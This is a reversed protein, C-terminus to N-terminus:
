AAVFSIPDGGLALSIGPDLHGVEAMNRTLGFIRNIACVVAHDRVFTGKGQVRTVGKRKWSSCHRARPTNSVQYKELIENESPVPSKAPLAGGPIMAVIDRSIQFYKPPSFQEKM